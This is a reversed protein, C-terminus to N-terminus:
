MKKQLSLELVSIKWDRLGSTISPSKPEQDRASTGLSCKNKKQFGGKLPKAASSDFIFSPPEHYRIVLGQHWTETNKPESKPYMAPDTWMPASFFLSISSHYSFWTNESRQTAQMHPGRWHVAIADPPISRSYQCCSRQTQNRSVPFPFVSLKLPTLPDHHIPRKNNHHHHHHHHHHRRRCQHPGAKGPYKHFKPM